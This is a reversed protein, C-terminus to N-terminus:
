VALISLVMQVGRYSLFKFESDGGGFLRRWISFFIGM